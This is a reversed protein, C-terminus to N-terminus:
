GRVNIRGLWNTVEQLTEREQDCQKSFGEVLRARPAHEALVDLSQGLGYGGHTIFPVLTRGSLDHQSLFSRIVSPATMGWIPFGLFVTENSKVDPVTAALLPEFGSDRQQQAVAVQEEYDEPYPDATRIEFVDAGLARGIQGAIVRTNGTRTYYAVLVKTDGARRATSAGAPLSLGAGLPLALASMLAGRRSMRNLQSM